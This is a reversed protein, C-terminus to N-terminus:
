DEVMLHDHIAVCLHEIDKTAANNITIPGREFIRPQVAIIYARAFPFHQLSHRQNRIDFIKSM